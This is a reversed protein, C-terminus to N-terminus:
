INVVIHLDKKDSISGGYPKSIFIISFNHALYFLLKATNRHKYDSWVVKQLDLKKKTEIFVETDDLISHLGPM